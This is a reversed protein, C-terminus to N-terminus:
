IVCIPRFECANCEASVSPYYVKNEIGRVIFNVYKEITDMSSHNWLKSYKTEFVLETQKCNYGTEKMIMWLFTKYGIDNALSFISEETSFLLPVPGYKKDILILDAFATIVSQSVEVSLPVNSIGHRSDQIFIKYYWNHMKGITKISSQYANQFAIKDKIDVPDFYYKNVRSKITDWQPDYGHQSRNVYCQKILEHEIIKNKRFSTQVNERFGFQRPCISYAKIQDLSLNPM